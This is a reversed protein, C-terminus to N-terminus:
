ISGSGLVLDSNSIQSTAPTFGEPQVVLRTLSLRRSPSTPKSNQQRDTAAERTSVGEEIAAIVRGRRDGSLSRTM